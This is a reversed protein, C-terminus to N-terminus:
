AIWDEANPVGKGEKSATLPLTLEVAYQDASDDIRLTYQNGYILDLRKRVNALGVGGPEKPGDGGKTNECLFRIYDQSTTAAIHIRSERHYSVGHKFANELFMIFLLPPVEGRAPSPLDVTLQVRDTFRLRMLAIYNSLFQVESEMPIFHSNSDYVVYRMMRSLLIISSKAREPDIDVLAHINNLTNMFFHPNIQARLYKLQNYLKEQKLLMLQHATEESRFYIKVGLNAAFLLVLIFISAWDIREIFSPPAFHLIEVEVGQVTKGQRDRVVVEHPPPNHPPPVDDISRTAYLILATLVVMLASCLFYRLKRPSFFFRAVYRDHIVFFLLFVGMTSWIHAYFPWSIPDDTNRVRFYMMLFPSLLVAGWGFAYIILERHRQLKDLLRDKNM